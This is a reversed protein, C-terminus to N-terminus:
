GGATSTFEYTSQLSDGSSLNIVSFVHRDLLTGSGVTASTLVGQETIAVSADVTNTGVTQYINASAGEGQTGTARTNDTSYQTTLETEIDTDGIVAATSGLGIGHFNFLDIETTNQFADTIFNVGATTVVELSVLGLPLVSGDRRIVVLSLAGYFHCLGLRRALFIKEAGRWVNRFNRSRFRRVERALAAHPWAKSLLKRLSRPGEHIPDPVVGPTPLPDGARIVKLALNGSFHGTGKMSSM